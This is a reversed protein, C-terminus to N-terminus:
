FIENKEDVDAVHSEGKIYFPPRIRLYPSNQLCNM